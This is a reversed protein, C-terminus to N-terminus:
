PKFAENYVKIARQCRDLAQRVLMENGPFAREEQSLELYSALDFAAERTLSISRDLLDPKVIL